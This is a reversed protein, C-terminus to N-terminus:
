ALNCQIFKVKPCPDQITTRVTHISGLLKEASKGHGGDNIDNHSKNRSLVHIRKFYLRWALWSFVNSELPKAAGLLENVDM